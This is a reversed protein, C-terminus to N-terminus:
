NNLVFGIKLKYRSESSITNREKKLIYKYRLGCANCLSSKKDPGLRWQPTEKALCKVCVRDYREEKNFFM